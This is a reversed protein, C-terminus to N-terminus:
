KRKTARRRSTKVLREAFKTTSRRKRVIKKKRSKKKIAKIAMTDADIAIQWGMARELAEQEREVQQMEVLADAGDRLRIRLEPAPKRRLSVGKVSRRRSRSLAVALRLIGALFEVRKFEPKHLGQLEGQGFKPMAKRHHLAVLAILHREDQTFGMIRGNNLLYYSHKHYSTQSIFKGAEHLTAAV